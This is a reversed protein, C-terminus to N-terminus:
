LSPCLSLQHAAHRLVAAARPIVDAAARTLAELPEALPHHDEIVEAAELCISRVAMPQQSVGAMDAVIAAVEPAAKM